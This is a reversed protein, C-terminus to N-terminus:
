PKVYASPPKIAGPDEKALKVFEDVCPPCCFEYTKGGIVWSCAPNAKTLTVPCVKDGAKPNIDHAARFDKFKVSATVNGNAKIDEATYAGGPTLYLLKEAEDEIKTPMGDAVSNGHGQDVTQFALHYRDNGLKLAPITVEIPKGQLEPPLQGAFRSTFGQADGGLPDPKLEFSVFEAEGIVRGYATLPHAEAEVVRTIDKCFLFLHLGGGKHLLAEAYYRGKAFAVHVGGPHHELLESKNKGHGDGRQSDEKFDGSYAKGDIQGSINGTFEIEKGLEDHSATFAVGKADSKGPDHKLELTIPPRATTLTLTMRTFREPAVKAAKRAAGDLIYVVATKSKHDVTFEAHYEEDGWEAIAGGHPGADHAHPQTDAPQPGAPARAARPARECGLTVVAGALVLAGILEKLGTKM